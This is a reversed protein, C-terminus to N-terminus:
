ITSKNAAKCSRADALARVNSFNVGDTRASKFTFSVFQVSLDQTYKSSVAMTWDSISLVAHNSFEHM